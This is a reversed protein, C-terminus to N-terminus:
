EAVADASIADFAAGSGAFRVSLGLSAVPLAVAVRLAAAGPSAVDIRAVRGGDPAATWALGALAVSRAAPPVDRGFGIALPQGKGGRGANYAALAAAESADPRALDITRAAAVSP